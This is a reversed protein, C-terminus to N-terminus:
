KGLHRESEFKIKKADIGFEKLIEKLDSGALVKLALLEMREAPACQKAKQDLLTALDSMKLTQQLDRDFDAVLGSM